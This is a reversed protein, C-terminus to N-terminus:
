VDFHKREGNQWSASVNTDDVDRQWDERAFFSDMMEVNNYIGEENIWEIKYVYWQFFGCVVSRKPCLLCGDMIADDRIHSVAEFVKNPSPLLSDDEDDGATREEDEQLCELENSRLTGM